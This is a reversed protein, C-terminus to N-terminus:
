HITDNSHFIMEGRNKGSHGADFLVSAVIAQIASIELREFGSLLSREIIIEFEADSIINLERLQILYGFAETTIVYKEAQHLIRFSTSHQEPLRPAQEINGSLRDFLWSFALSIETQSYGQRELTSIDIEGIQKNTKRVENLVYMLIEVIREQM